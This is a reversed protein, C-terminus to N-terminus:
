TESDATAEAEDVSLGIDVLVIWCLIFIEWPFEIDMLFVLFGPLLFLNNPVMVATCFPTLMDVRNDVATFVGPRLQLCIFNLAAFNEICQLPHEITGANPSSYSISMAM